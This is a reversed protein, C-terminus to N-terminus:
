TENGPNLSGLIGPIWGVYSDYSVNLNVIFWKGGGENQYITAGIDLAAKACELDLNGCLINAIGILSEREQSFWYRSREHYDYDFDFIIRRYM